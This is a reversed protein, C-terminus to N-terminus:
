MGANAVYLDKGHLLAVVATCGSDKGPEDTITKMFAADEENIYEGMDAYEDPEEEEEEASGEERNCLDFTKKQITKFVFVAFIWLM